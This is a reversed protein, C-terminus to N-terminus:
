ADGDVTRMLDALLSEGTEVKAEDGSAPGPFPIHVVGHALRAYIGAPDLGVCTPEGQSEVGVVEAGVSDAGTHAACLRALTAKDANLTRCVGPELEALPNPLMLADGDFVWPGHKASDVWFAAWKTHDPFERGPEADDQVHSESYGAQSLHFALWRDTVRSEDIEEASVMLQLADDTEDPVSLVLHQSFFTASPVSAILRGTAHENVFRM